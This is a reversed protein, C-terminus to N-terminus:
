HCSRLLTPGNNSSDFLVLSKTLMWITIRHDRTQCPEGVDFSRRWVLPASMIMVNSNQNELSYVHTATSRLLPMPCGINISQSNEVLLTVSRLSEPISSSVLGSTTCGGSPCPVNNSRLFSENDTLGFPRGSNGCSNVNSPPSLSRAARMPPMTVIEIRIPLPGIYARAISRLERCWAMKFGTPNRGDAEARWGYLELERLAGRCRLGSRLLRLPGWRRYYGDRM